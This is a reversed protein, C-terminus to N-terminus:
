AGLNRRKEEDRKSSQQDNSLEITQRDAAQENEAQWTWETAKKERYLTVPNQPQSYSAKLPRLQAVARDKTSAETDAKLMWLWRVGAQWASGGRYGSMDDDATTKLAESKSLHHLLMVACPRTRSWVRWSRIFDGIAANDIEDLIAAEALPDLILLDARHRECLTRLREGAPTLAAPQWRTAGVPPSWIPEDMPEIHLRGDMRSYVGGGAQTDIWDMREAIEINLEDEYPAYVVRFPAAEDLQLCEKAGSRGIWDRQSAALSMALQLALLSKGAAGTGTLMGITGAPLWNKIMWTRRRRKAAPIPFRNTGRDFTAPPLLQRMSARARRREMENTSNYTDVIQEANWPAPPIPKELAALIRAEDALEPEEGKERAEHARDLAAILEGDQAAQTIQEHANRQGNQNSM